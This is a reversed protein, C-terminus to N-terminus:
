NLKSSLYQKYLLFVHTEVLVLSNLAFDQRPEFVRLDMTIKLFTWLATSSNFLVPELLLDSDAPILLVTM